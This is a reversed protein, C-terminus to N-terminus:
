RSAWLPRLLSVARLTVARGLYQRTWGIGGDHTVAISSTTVGSYYDAGVVWGNSGDVFDIGFFEGEGVQSPAGFEDYWTYDTFENQYLWWMAGPPPSMAESHWVQEGYWTGDTTDPDGAILSAWDSTGPVAAVGNVRIDAAGMNLTM